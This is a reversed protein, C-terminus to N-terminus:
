PVAIFNALPACLSIQQFFWLLLPSLGCIDGLQSQRSRGCLGAKGLRGAVAYIIIAVALFSLWFGPSLVALPDYLLVAFMAVALTHFPRVHRQLMIALMFCWCCSLRGNALCQSGPWSGCLGGRGADCGNGGGTAAALGFLGDLGLM